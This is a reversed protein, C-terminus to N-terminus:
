VLMAIQMPIREPNSDTPEILRKSNPFDLSLYAFDQLSLGINKKGASKQQSIVQEEKMLLQLIFFLIIIIILIHTLSSFGM